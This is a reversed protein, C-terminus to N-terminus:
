RYNRVGAAKHDSWFVACKVIHPKNKPKIQFIILLLKIIFILLKFKLVNQIKQNKLNIKKNKEL